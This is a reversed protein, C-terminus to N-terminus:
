KSESMIMTISRRNVSLLYMNNVFLQCLLNGCMRTHDQPMNGILIASFAVARKTLLCEAVPQSLFVLRDLVQIILPAGSEPAVSIVAKILDLTWRLDTLSLKMCQIQVPLSKDSMLGCIKNMIFDCCESIPPTIQRCSCVQHMIESTQIVKLNCFFDIHNGPIGIRCPMFFCQDIGSIVITHAM